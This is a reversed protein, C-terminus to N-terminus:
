FSKEELINGAADYKRWIGIPKGLKDFYKEEELQGNEYYTKESKNIPKWYPSRSLISTGEGQIVWKKVLTDENPYPQYELIRRIKNNRFYDIDYKVEIEGKKSYIGWKEPDYFYTKFVTDFKQEEWQSIGGHNKYWRRISHNKSYRIEEYSLEGPKEFTQRM